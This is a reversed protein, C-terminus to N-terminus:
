AARYPILKVHVFFLQVDPPAIVIEEFLEVEVFTLM